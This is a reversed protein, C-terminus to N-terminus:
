SDTTSTTDPTKETAATSVANRKEAIKRLVGKGHERTDDYEACFQAFHQAEELKDKGFCYDALFRYCVAESDEDSLGRQELQQLFMRYLAAAQDNSADDGEKEFVNALKVIASGEIDGVCHAKWFCKKADGVRNQQLLMDGLAMLMRSDQPRTKHAMNYYYLAYNPMKLIDYLQGLSYWARFDKPDIELAKRYALSAASTNKLEMFEHGMLTWAGVNSPDLKLARQFYVVAREHDGRITYYNGVVGCTEPCFQNVKFCHHALKSLENKMEKVFLTNSYIDMLELRNPDQSCLEEFLGQATDLEQLSHHAMALKSLLYPSRQFGRTFLDQYIPIADGAMQWRILMEAIALEKMWHEPLCLKNLQESSEMLKALEVWAPWVWPHSNVAQVLQSVAAKKMGLEILVLGLLYQLFPDTVPGEETLSDHLDTLEENQFSQSTDMVDAMNDLKKEEGDLFQAYYHLFKLLANNNHNQAWHSARKFERADMCAHVLALTKKEKGTFTVEEQQSTSASPSGDDEPLFYLMEACWKTCDTLRRQVCAEQLRTLDKVVAIIDKSSNDDAM